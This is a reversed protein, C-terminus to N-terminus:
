PREDPMAVRTAAAKAQDAPKLGLSFLFGVGVLATTLGFLTSYSTAELLWGGVIPALTLVGMITNGLGVYAPRMGDPAMELMYNTFGLMWTSYVIGWMAYVVPYAQALWGGGALHAVLAFLPGGVAAASGIRAAIRPGWRESAPGLFASAVIGALTQAIVFRGVVSEPLHLVDSAHVVYFSGSLGLLGVLLRCVILRHFNTDTTLIRLWGSMGRDDKRPATDDAPPERLLMLALSAPVFAIGMLTFLLAYNSAFPRQELILTVLAGV